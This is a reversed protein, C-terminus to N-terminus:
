AVSTAPQPARAPAAAGRPGPGAGRAPGASAVRRRRSRPRRRRRSRRKGREEREEGGGAEGVEEQPPAAVEPAQAHGPGLQLPVLALVLAVRAVAGLPPTEVGRQGASRAAGGAEHHVRGAEGDRQCVAASPVIRRDDESLADPPRAAARRRSARRSPMGTTWSRASARARKRSASTPSAM